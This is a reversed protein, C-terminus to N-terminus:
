IQFGHAYEKVKPKGAPTVSEVRRLGAGLQVAARRQEYARMCFRVYTRDSRNLEGSRIRLRLQLRDNSNALMYADFAATDAERTYFFDVAAALHTCFKLSPCTCLGATVVWEIGKRTFSTVAFTSEGIRRVKLNRLKAIRLLEFHKANLELTM